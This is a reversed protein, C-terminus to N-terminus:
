WKKAHRCRHDTELRRSHNAVSSLIFISSAGVKTYVEIGSREQMLQSRKNSASELEACIVAM